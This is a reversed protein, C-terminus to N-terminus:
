FIFRLQLIVININIWMYACGEQRHDQHELPPHHVLQYTRDKCLPGIGARAIRALCTPGRAACSGVRLSVHTHGLHAADPRRQAHPGRRM